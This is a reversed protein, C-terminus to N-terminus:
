SPWYSLMFERRDANFAFCRIPTFSVGEWRLWRNRTETCGPCMPWHVGHTPRSHSFAGKWGSLVRPLIAFIQTWQGWNAGDQSFLPSTWSIQFTLYCHPPDYRCDDDHHHRNRWSFIFCLTTMAIVIYETVNLANRRWPSSLTKQQM